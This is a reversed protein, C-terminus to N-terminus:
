EPENKCETHIQQLDFCFALMKTNTKHSITDADKCFRVEPTYHSYRTRFLRLHMSHFFQTIRCINKRRFTLVIQLLNAVSLERLYVVGVVELLKHRICFARALMEYVATGKSLVIVLKDNQLRPIRM